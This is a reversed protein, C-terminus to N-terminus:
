LKNRELGESWRDIFWLGLGAADIANHRLTKPIKELKSLIEKPLRPLIKSAQHDAKAQSGKWERPRVPIAGGTGETSLVAGAVLAVDILDNQDGKRQQKQYIQPVECVVYSYTGCEEEDAIICEVLEHLNSFRFVGCDSVVCAGGRQEVTSYGILHVGPDVCLARIM